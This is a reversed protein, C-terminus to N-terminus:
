ATSHSTCILDNYGECMSARVLDNLQYMPWDLEYVGGLVPSLSTCCASLLLTRAAAVRAEDAVNESPSL